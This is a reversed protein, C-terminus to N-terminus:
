RMVVAEACYCYADSIQWQEHREIGWHTRIRVDEPVAFTNAITELLRLANLPELSRFPSFRSPFFFANPILTM